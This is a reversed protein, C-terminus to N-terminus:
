AARARPDAKSAVLRQILMRGFADFIRPIYRHKYPFDVPSDTLHVLMTPNAEFLLVNGDRGIACDIGAFDLDLRRAVEVIADGLQGPFATRWDSLFAEEELKMWPQEAMDVRYYHLKWDHGITLHYPYVQRDIFILRYKRWYGDDSRYDHFESLYFEDTPIAALYAVLASADDVKQLDDGGHAGAPRVLVPRAFNSASKALDALAERSSRRVPPVTLGRIGDLLAAVGDRTTRAIRHDPPNIVPRGFRECFTQTKALFQGGRDADAVANVVVDCAGFSELPADAVADDEGPPQLYVVVAEFRKNQLLFRLSLNCLAAGGVILVRAQAPGGVSPQLAIGHRRAAERRYWGAESPRHDQDFRNALQVYAEVHNPALEIVKRLAAEARATDPVALAAIGLDMLGDVSNPEVAVRAEFAACADEPRRAELLMHGRNRLAVVFSPDLALARDVMDLALDRRGIRHLSLALNNFALAYDPKLVTATEFLLISERDNGARQRIKGLEFVVMALEFRSMAAEPGTGDAKSLAPSLNEPVIPVGPDICLRRRLLAEAEGVEPGDSLVMALLLQARHHNPERALVSRYLTAAEDHRGEQHHQFAIEIADPRVNESAEIMKAAVTM